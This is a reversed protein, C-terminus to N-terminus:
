FNNENNLKLVKKTTTGNHTMVRVLYVGPNLGELVLTTETVTRFLKKSYVEKGEISLITIEKVKQNANITLSKFFPSPFVKIEIPIDEKQSRVLSNKSPQQQNEMCSNASHVHLGDEQIFTKEEGSCSSKLTLSYYVVDAEVIKGNNMVGGWMPIPQSGISGSESYIESGWINVVKFEYSDAGNIFWAVYDHLGDCDPEFANILKPNCIPPCNCDGISLDVTSLKGSDFSFGNGPKIEIRDGAKFYRFNGDEITIASEKPEIFIYDKVINYNELVAFNSNKLHLSNTNGTCLSECLVNCGSSSGCNIGDENADQACNDCPSVTSASSNSGFSASMANTPTVSTLHGIIGPVFDDCPISSTKNQGFASVPISPDALTGDNGYLRDIMEEDEFSLPRTKGKIATRKM